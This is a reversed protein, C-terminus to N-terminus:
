NCSLTTKARGHRSWPLLQSVVLKQTRHSQSYKFAIRKSWEAKQSNQINESHKRLKKKNEELSSGTKMKNSLWPIQAWRKVKQVLHQWEIKPETSHVGVMAYIILSLNFWKFLCHFQKFLGFPCRWWSCVDTAPFKKERYLGAVAVTPSQQFKQLSCAKTM